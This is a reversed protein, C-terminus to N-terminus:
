QGELGDDLEGEIVNDQDGSPLSQQGAQLDALFSAQSAGVILIQQVTTQDKPDIVELGHLKSRQKMVELVLKAENIDPPMDVLEIEEEERSIKVKMPVKHEQTAAHWHAHMLQDLRDSEMAIVEDRSLKPATALEIVYERHLKTAELVNIDLRDAIDAMLEGALRYYYIKRGLDADDTYGDTM